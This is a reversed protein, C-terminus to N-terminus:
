CCIGDSNKGFVVLSLVCLFDVEMKNPTIMWPVLLFRVAELSRPTSYALCM